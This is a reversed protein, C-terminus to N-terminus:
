NYFDEIYRMDLSDNIIKYKKLFENKESSVYVYIYNKNEITVGLLNDNDFMSIYYAGDNSSPIKGRYEVLQLDNLYSVLDNIKDANKIIKHSSGRMVRVEEFQKKSYKSLVLDNFSGKKAYENYVLLLILMTVIAIFICKKNPTFKRM